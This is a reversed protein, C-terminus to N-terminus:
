VRGFIETRWGEHRVSKAYREALYVNEFDGIEMQSNNTFVAVYFKMAEDEKDSQRGLM